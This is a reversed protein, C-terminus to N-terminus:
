FDCPTHRKNQLVITPQAHAGVDQGLLGELTMNVPSIINLVKFNATLMPLRMLGYIRHVNFVVADPGVPVGIFLLGGAKIVCSLIEVGKLDGAPDLPDGYRGLGNHQHKLLHLCLGGQPLERCAVATCDAGSDLGCDPRPELSHAHVGRDDREKRRAWRVNPSM